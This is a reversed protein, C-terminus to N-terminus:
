GARSAPEGSWGVIAQWVADVRPLTRTARHTVLWLPLPPPLPAPADIVILGPDDDALRRTSITVGLGARVAAHVAEWDTSRLVPPRAGHRAAWSGEDSAIGPMDVGVWDLAEWPTGAWKPHAIVGYDLAGLRRAILDEGTPQVFRLALDAERRTLDAISMSVVIDFRLDPHRARLQPLLPILWHHALGPAIAIRVVGAVSGELDEVRAQVRRVAAEAQEAEDIVAAALATPVLGGRSRHFLAGGLAHELAAIRRSVTSQQTGLLVAARSFSGARHAALFTRLDDWQMDHM